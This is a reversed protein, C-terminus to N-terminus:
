CDGDRVWRGTPDCTMHAKAMCAIAGESFTRGEHSCIAALEIGEERAVHQRVLAEPIDAHLSLCGTLGPLALISIAAIRM